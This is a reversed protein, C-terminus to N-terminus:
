AAAGKLTIGDFSLMMGDDQQPAPISRPASSVDFDFVNGNDDDPPCLGAGLGVGPGAATSSSSPLKSKTQRTALKKIAAVKPASKQRVAKPPKKTPKKTSAAPQQQFDFLDPGDAVGDDGLPLDLPM